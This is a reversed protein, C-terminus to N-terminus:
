RRRRAHRLRPQHAAHGGPGGIVAVLLDAATVGVVALRLGPGDDDTGVTVGDRRFLVFDVIVAQVILLCLILLRLGVVDAM